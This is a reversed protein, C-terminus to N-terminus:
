AAEMIKNVKAALGVVEDALVGVEKEVEQAQHPAGDRESCRRRIM